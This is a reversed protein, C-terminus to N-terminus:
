IDCCCGHRLRPRIGNNRIRNNKRPHTQKSEGITSPVRQRHPSPTPLRQPTAASILSFFLITPLLFDVVESSLPPCPASHSSPRSLSRCSFPLLSFLSPSLAHVPIFVFHLLHTLIKPHTPLSPLACLLSPLYRNSLIALVWVTARTPSGAEHHTYNRVTRVYRYRDQTGSHVYM